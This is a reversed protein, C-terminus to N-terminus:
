LAGVKAFLESMQSGPTVKLPHDEAEPTLITAEASRQHAQALNRAGLQRALHLVQHFPVLVLEADLSDVLGPGAGGRFGGLVVGDFVPFTLLGGLVVGDFVPFTVLGGLAVGDFVPFAYTSSPCKCVHLRPYEHVLRSNCSVHTKAFRKKKLM